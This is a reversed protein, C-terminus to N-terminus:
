SAGGPPVENVSRSPRDSDGNERPKQLDARQEGALASGGLFREPWALARKRRCGAERNPLNEARAATAAGEDCGAAVVSRWAPGRECLSEAPGFRWKRPTKPPGGEARGGSCLRGPLARALGAGAKTPM